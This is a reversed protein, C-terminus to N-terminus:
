LCYFMRVFNWKFHGGEGKYSEKGRGQINFARETKCLWEM